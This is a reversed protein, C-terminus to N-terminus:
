GFSNFGHTQRLLESLLESPLGDSLSSSDRVEDDDGMSSSVFLLALLSHLEM